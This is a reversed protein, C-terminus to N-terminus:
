FDNKKSGNIILDNEKSKFVEISSRGNDISVVIDLKVKEECNVLILHFVVFLLIFYHNKM